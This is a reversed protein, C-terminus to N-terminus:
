IDLSVRRKLRILSAHLPSCSHLHHTSLSHPVGDVIRVEDPDFDKGTPIFGPIQQAAFKKFEDDDSWGDGPELVKSNLCTTSSSIIANNKSIKTWSTAGGGTRRIRFANVSALLTLLFLIPVHM